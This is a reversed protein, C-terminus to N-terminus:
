DLHAKGTYTRVFLAPDDHEDVYSTMEGQAHLDAYAGTGEAIVWSGEGVLVFPDETLTEIIETRLAFTGANGTFEYVGHIIVFTPAWIASFVVSRTIFTGTDSFAGSAAFAGPSGVFRSTAITVEAPKTASAPTTEAIALAGFAALLVVWRVLLGRRAVGFPMATGTEHLRIASASQHIV